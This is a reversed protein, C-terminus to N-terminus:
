KMPFFHKITISKIILMVILTQHPYFAIRLSESMGLAM